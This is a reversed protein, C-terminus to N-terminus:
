KAISDLNEGVCHWVEVVLRSFEAVVLSFHLSIRDDDVFREAVEVTVVFCLLQPLVDEIVRFLKCGISQHYGPTVVKVVRICVQGVM